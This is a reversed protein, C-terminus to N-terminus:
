RLLLVPKLSFPRYCNLQTNKLFHLFAQHLYFKVRALSYQLIEIFLTRAFELSRLGDM